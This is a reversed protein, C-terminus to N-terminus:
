ERGMRVAIAQEVLMAYVYVSECGVEYSALPIARHRERVSDAVQCCYAGEEARRVSVKPNIGRLDHRVYDLPTEGTRVAGLNVVRCLRNANANSNTKADFEFRAIM